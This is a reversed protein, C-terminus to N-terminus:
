IRENCCCIDCSDCERFLSYKKRENRQGGVDLMKFHYEEIVFETEVIGTTRARCRLVDQYTPLFDDEAMADVRGFFYQCADDLQFRARNAFTNKIGPDGWLIKIHRAIEKDVQQEVKVDDLIYRASAESEKSIQCGLSPDIKASQTILTKMSLITNTYCINAYPVRAEVSFGKGYLQIIQKFLTSKGSDGAGLLLLKLIDDSFEKDKDIAVQINKNTTREVELKKKDEGTLNKDSSTCTGMTRLSTQSEGGV